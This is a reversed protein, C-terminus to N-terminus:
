HITIQGGSLPHQGSAYGTDLIIGYSDPGDTVDIRFNHSGAGDITAKGFISAETRMQNCTTATLETSVVKLPQAPGRDTYQQHGEVTGDALVKANGGFSARDGNNAFIFGGDSITVACFSTSAPPTWVKAAENFPEGADQMGNTNSDAFAHIGNAGPLAASFCFTAQGSTNTTASGSSPTSFTTQAGVVSFRVTIDPTPNDSADKVTATVCHQKGVTNTAGV